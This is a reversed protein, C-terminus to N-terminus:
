IGGEEPIMAHAEDEPDLIARKIAEILPDIADKTIDEKREFGLVRMAAKVISGCMQDQDADSAIVKAQEYGKAALLKLQNESAFSGGRKVPKEPAPRPREDRMEPPMEEAPTGSYGALEPIWRLTSGLAKSSARTQAMSIVAHRDQWRPKGYFQEAYFCGCEAAGIMEGTSFRFVEVRAIYGELDGTKPHRIETLSATRPAVGVMSGLTLWAEIKLHHGKGIPVSWDRDQIMTSLESAIAKARDLGVGVEGFEAIADRTNTPVLATTM